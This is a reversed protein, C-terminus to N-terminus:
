SCLIELWYSRSATSIVLREREPLAFLARRVLARVENAEAIETRGASDMPVDAVTERSSSMLRKGRTLRDVHKLIIRRFWRAFAAPERLKAVTLYAELFAEQAVDEALHVDELIAYASACAMDQFREVIPTFAEADGWQAARVLLDLPEM